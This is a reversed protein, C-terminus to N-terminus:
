NRTAKPRGHKGLTTRQFEIEAANLFVGQGIERGLRYTKLKVSLTSRALGLKRATQAASFLLAFRRDFEAWFDRDPIKSLNM